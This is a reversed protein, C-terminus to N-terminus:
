FALCMRVNFKKEKKGYITSQQCNCVHLIINLILPLLKFIYHYIYIYTYYVYISCCDFKLDSTAKCM